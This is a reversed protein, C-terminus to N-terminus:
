AFRPRRCSSLNFDLKIAKTTELTQSPVRRKGPGTFLQVGARSTCLNILHVAGVGVTVGFTFVIGERVSGNDQFGCHRGERLM